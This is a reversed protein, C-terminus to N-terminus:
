LGVFLGNEFKGEKLPLGYNDMLKIHRTRGKWIGKIEERFRSVFIGEGNISDAQWSGSFFSDGSLTLKGKGHRLGQLWNGQYMMDDTYHMTGSGNPKGNEWSGLYKSGDAFIMSGQGHKKGQLWGGTYMSGDPLHYTGSGHFRGAEWEGAYNSGDSYTMNGQGWYKGAKWSGEYRDGNAYTAIGQGHAKGADLEGEYSYVRGEDTIVNELKGYDLLLQREKALARHKGTPYDNLYQQYSTWSDTQLSKEWVKEEDLYSLVSPAMWIAAVILVTSAAILIYGKANGSKIRRQIKRQFAEFDAKSVPQNETALVQRSLRRRGKVLQALGEFAQKREAIAANVEEEPWLWTDAPPIEAQSSFEQLPKQLQTYTEQWIKTALPELKAKYQQQGQQFSSFQNVFAELDQTLTEIKPKAATNEDYSKASLKEEIEKFRSVLMKHHSPHLNAKQRTIEHQIAQFAQLNALYDHRYRERNETMLGELEDLLDRNSAYAIFSGDAEIAVLRNQLAELRGQYAPDRFTSQDIEIM